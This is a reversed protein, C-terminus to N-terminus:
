RKLFFRARHQQSLILLFLSLVNSTVLVGPHVFEIFFISVSQLQAKQLSM